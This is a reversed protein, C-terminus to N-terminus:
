NLYGTALLLIVGAVLVLVVAGLYFYLADNEPLQIM